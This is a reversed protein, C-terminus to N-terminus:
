SLVDGCVSLVIRLADDKSLSTADLGNCWLFEVAKKVEGESGFGCVVGLGSGRGVM